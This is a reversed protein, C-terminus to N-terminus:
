RVILGTNVFLLYDQSMSFDEALCRLLVFKVAVSFLRSVDAEQGVTSLGGAGDLPWKHSM